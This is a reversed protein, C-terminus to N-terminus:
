VAASELKPSPKALDAALMRMFEPMYLHQDHWTRGSVMNGSRVLGENVYSGGAFEIDLQCKAITPWEADKETRGCGGRTRSWPLSM